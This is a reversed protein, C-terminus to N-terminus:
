RSCGEPNELVENNWFRLVRFGQSELWLTRTADRAMGSSDAHQGGDIEVVLHGSLWAFDVIYPGIPSQRRFPTGQDRFPRLIRWM